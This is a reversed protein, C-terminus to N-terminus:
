VRVGERRINLLLPSQETDFRRSSVFTCSLVVDHKLSLAATLTGTRAIEEGPDVPGELVVLVDIDSGADAEDRAQSGFLVLQKLRAGYLLGFQDRLVSLIPRLSEKM